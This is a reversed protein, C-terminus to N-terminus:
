DQRAEEEWSISGDASDFSGASRGGSENCWTRDESASHFKVITSIANSNTGSWSEEDEMVTPMVFLALREMHEGVHRYFAEGREEFNM